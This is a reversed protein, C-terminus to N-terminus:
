ARRSCRGEGLALLFGDSAALGFFLQAVEVQFATL